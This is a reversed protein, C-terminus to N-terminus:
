WTVDAPKVVLSRYSGPLSFDRSLSILYMQMILSAGGVLGM